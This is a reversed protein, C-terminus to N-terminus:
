SFTIFLDFSDSSGRARQTLASIFRDVFCFRRQKRQHTLELLREELRLFFAGVSLSHSVHTARQHIRKPLYALM